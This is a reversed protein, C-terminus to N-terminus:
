EQEDWAKAKERRAEAAWDVRLAELVADALPFCNIIIQAEGGAGYRLSIVEDTIAESLLTAIRIRLSGGESM